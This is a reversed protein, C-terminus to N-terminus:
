HNIGILETISKLGNTKLYNVLENNINAAVSPGKYILGTYIQVASAGAKLYNIM